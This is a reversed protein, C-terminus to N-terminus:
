GGSLKTVQKEISRLRDDLNHVAARLFEIEMLLDVPSPLDDGLFTFVGKARPRPTYTSLYADADPGPPPAPRPAVTLFGEPPPEAPPELVLQVKGRLFIGNPGVLHLDEDDGLTIDSPM